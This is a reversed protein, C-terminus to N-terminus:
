SRSHCPNHRKHTEQMQEITKGSRTMTMTVWLLLAARCCLAVQDVVETENTILEPRNEDNFMRDRWRCTKEIRRSGMTKSDPSAHYRCHTKWSSQHMKAGQKRNAGFTEMTARSTNNGGTDGTLLWHIWSVEKRCRSTYRRQGCSNYEPTTTLHGLSRIIFFVSPTPEMRLSNELPQWSQTHTLPDMDDERLVKQINRKKECHSQVAKSQIVTEKLFSYAIGGRFVVCDPLSGPM